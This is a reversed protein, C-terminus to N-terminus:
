QKLRGHPFSGGGMSFARWNLGPALRANSAHESEKGAVDAFSPLFSRIALTVIKPALEIM